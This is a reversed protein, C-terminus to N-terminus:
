LTKRQKDYIIGGIQYFLFLGITHKVILCISKINLQKFNTKHEYNLGVKYVM